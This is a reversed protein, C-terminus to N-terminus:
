VSPGSTRRPHYANWYRSADGAVVARAWEYPQKPPRSHAEVRAREEELAKLAATRADDATASEPLEISELVRQCRTCEAAEADYLEMDWRDPRGGCAHKYGRQAAWVMHKFEVVESIWQALLDRGEDSQADAPPPSM